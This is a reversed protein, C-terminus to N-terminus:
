SETLQELLQEALKKRDFGDEALKRANTKMKNRIPENNKIYKIKALFDAPDSPNVFFGCDNEEVLKRTWGDSNVICIKGAALSDFLKNPSNTYLIPIDLFTIISLDCINVIEAIITKPLHGLFKVNSLNEAQVIKKLDPETKGTGAFIFQIDSLNENKAIRATKIIYELGNAIGMSGFHIVNFRNALGYTDEIPKNIKHPYFLDLDAANPIVTVKKGLNYKEIGERMGPSLAIISKANKYILYEIYYAIRQMLKSKIAGMQIPFEPWLDRVEFVYPIGKIWKLLIATIGVTLPTSTAFCIDVEKMKMAHLFSKLMFKNFSFIRALIGLQNNYYNSIWQVDVGDIQQRKFNKQNHSAIMIVKHGHEAFYKSFEYSRTGGGIEPTTFYQHIYIIKM